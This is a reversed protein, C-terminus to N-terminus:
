GATSSRSWTSATWPGTRAGAAGGPRGPHAPHRQDGRGRRHGAARPDAGAMRHPRARPDRGRVHHGEPRAPANRGARQPADRQRRQVLAPHERAAGGRGPLRAAHRHRPGHRHDRRLARAARRGAAARDAPRDRELDAAGHPRRVEAAARRLPRPGGRARQLTRPALRVLRRGPVAQRGREVERHLPDGRRRRDGLERGRVAGAPRRQAVPDPAARLLQRALAM